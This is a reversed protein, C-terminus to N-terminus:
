WAIPRDHRRLQARMVGNIKVFDNESSFQWDYYSLEAKARFITGWSNMAYEKGAHRLVIPTLFPTFVSGFLKLKGSAIELFSDPANDFGAVQGWAYYDTHKEGWNHNQSGTWNSIEKQEGNVTITGKFKAM